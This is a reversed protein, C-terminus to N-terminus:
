MKAAFLQAGTCGRLVLADPELLSASSALKKIEMRLSIRTLDWEM